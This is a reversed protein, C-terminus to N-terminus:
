PSTTKTYGLLAFNELAADVRGEADGIQVRASAYEPTSGTGVAAAFTSYAKSASRLSALLAAHAAEAPLPPQMAAISKAVDAVGGALRGALQSVSATTAQPRIERRLAVRLQDLREVAARIQRAYGVDPTLDLGVGSADTFTAALRQCEEMYSPSRAPAYCIIATTSTTANPITYLTLIQDYGPVSLYSYRYAQTNLLSVVETHPLQRLRALFDPPLPNSRSELRGLILGARSSDGGPALVLTPTIALSPVAPAGLAPHWGSTSRYDLSGLASSAERTLEARQVPSHGSLFGLYAVALLTPAAVLLTTLRGGQM